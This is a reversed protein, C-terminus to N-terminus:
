ECYLYTAFAYSKKGQVQPPQIFPPGLSVARPPVHQGCTPSILAVLLAHTGHTAPASKKCSPMSDWLYITSCAYTPMPPCCSYWYILKCAIVSELVKIRISNSASKVLGFTKTQESIFLLAGNDLEELFPLYGQYEHLSSCYLPQLYSVNSAQIPVISTYGIDM